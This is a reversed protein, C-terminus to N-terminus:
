SQQVGEDSDLIDSTTPEPAVVMYEKALYMQILLMTQYFTMVM